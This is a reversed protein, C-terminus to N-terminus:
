SLRGDRGAVGRLRRADGRRRLRHGGGRRGHPDNRGAAEVAGGRDGPRARVRVRGPLRRLGPVRGGGHDDARIEAAADAPPTDVHRGKTAGELHWVVKGKEVCYLGDDGACFYVRDGVVRPEGETHSATPVSWALEGSDKKLTFLRCDSDSHLGEGCYV